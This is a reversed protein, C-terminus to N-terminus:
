KNKDLVIAIAAVIVVGVVVIIPYCWLPATVLWWSWTIIHDLKLVLFILFLASFLGINMSLDGLGASLYCADERFDM